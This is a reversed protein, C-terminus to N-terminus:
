HNRWTIKRPDHPHRISVNSAKDNVKLIINFAGYKM